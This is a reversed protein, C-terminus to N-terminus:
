TPWVVQILCIPSLFEVNHNPTFHARKGGEMVSSVMNGVRKRTMNLVTWMRSPLSQFNVSVFLAPVYRKVVRCIRYGVAYM